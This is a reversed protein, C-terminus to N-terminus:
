INSENCILTILEHLELHIEKYEELLSATDNNKSKSASRRSVLPKRLGPLTPLPESEVEFSGLFDQYDLDDAREDDNNFARGEDTNM